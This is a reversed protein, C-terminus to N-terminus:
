AKMMEIILFHSNELTKINLTEEVSTLADRANLTIDNISASGEAQVLYCQRNKAVTFSLEKDKELEAVYINADQHIKIPANGNVNSVAHFFKNKRNSEDYIFDGYNPALGQEDPLIWIQLIRTLVDYNNHESHLVGTGASMYQFNGRSLSKENGMSDKHSLKGELIYSVIEMNKHPHTDFGSHPHIYDDNLVRLVGFNMNNRNFYDAFSFHFKSQLWGLDSSGMNEVSYKKIM